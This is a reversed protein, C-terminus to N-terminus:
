PGGARHDRREGAEPCQPHHHFVQTLLVPSSTVELSCVGARVQRQKQLARLAPNWLLCRSGHEEGLVVVERGEGEGETVPLQSERTKASPRLLLHEIM